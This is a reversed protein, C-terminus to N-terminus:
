IGINQHRNHGKLELIPYFVCKVRPLETSIGQKLACTQIKLDLINLSPPMRITRFECKMGIVREMSHFTPSSALYNNYLNYMVFSSGFRIMQSISLQNIRM